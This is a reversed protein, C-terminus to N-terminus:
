LAPCSEVEKLPEVRKERKKKVFGIENEM